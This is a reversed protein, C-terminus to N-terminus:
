FKAKMIQAVVYQYVTDYPHLRKRRERETAAPTWEEPFQANWEEWMKTARARFFPNELLRRAEKSAAAFNRNEATKKRRKSRKPRKCVETRGNRTRCYEDKSISGRIEKFVSILKAIM